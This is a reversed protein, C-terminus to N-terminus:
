VGRKNGWLFVHLQPLVTVKFWGDQLVKQSLWDLRRVLADMDILADPADPVSPVPNGSQLFLPM